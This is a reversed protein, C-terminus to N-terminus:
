HFMVNLLHMLWADLYDDVRFSSFPKTNFFTPLHSSSDFKAPLTAPGKKFFCWEASGLYFPSGGCVIFDERNWKPIEHGACNNMNVVLRHGSPVIYWNVKMQMIKMSIDTLSTTPTHATIWNTVSKVIQSAIVVIWVIVDVWSWGEEREGTRPSDADYFSLGM